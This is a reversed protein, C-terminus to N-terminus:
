HDLGDCNDYHSQQDNRQGPNKDERGEFGVGEPDLARSADLSRRILDEREDGIEVTPAGPRGVLFQIGRHLACEVAGGVAFAGHILPVAVALRALSAHFDGIRGRRGPHCDFEIKEFRELRVVDRLECQLGSTFGRVDGPGHVTGVEIDRFDHADEEVHVAHDALVELGPEALSFASASCFGASAVVDRRQDENCDTGLWPSSAQDRFALRRFARRPPIGDDGAGGCRWAAPHETCPGVRM